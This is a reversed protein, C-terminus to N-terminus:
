HGATFTLHELMSTLLLNDRPLSFLAKILSNM